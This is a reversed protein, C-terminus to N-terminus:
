SPFLEPFMRGTMLVLRKWVGEILLFRDLMLLGCLRAERGLRDEIRSGEEELCESGDRKGVLFWFM